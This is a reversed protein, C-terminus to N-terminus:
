AVDHTLTSVRILEEVHEMRRELGAAHFRIPHLALDIFGDWPELREAERSLFGDRMHNLQRVFVTM